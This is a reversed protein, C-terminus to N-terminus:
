KRPREHTASLSPARPSMVGIACAVGGNAVTLLLEMTGEVCVGFGTSGTSMSASAAGSTPATEMARDAVRSARADSGGIKGRSAVMALAIFLLGSRM